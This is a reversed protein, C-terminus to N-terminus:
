GRPRRAERSGRRTGSTSASFKVIRFLWNRSQSMKPIMRLWRRPYEVFPVWFTISSLMMWQQLVVLPYASARPSMSCAADDRDAAVFDAAGDGGCRPPEIRPWIRVQALVPLM